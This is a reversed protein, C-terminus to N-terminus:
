EKREWGDLGQRRRRSTTCAYLMRCYSEAGGLVSDLPGMSHTM